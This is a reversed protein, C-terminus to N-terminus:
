PAAGVVVTHNAPGHRTWENVLSKIDEQGFVPNVSPIVDTMSMADRIRKSKMLLGTSLRKRVSPFPLAPQMSTMSLRSPPSLFTTSRSRLHHKSHPLKQTFAFINHKLSGPEIDQLHVDPLSCPFPFGALSSTSQIRRPSGASSPSMADPSMSLKISSISRISSNSSFSSMPPRSDPPPASSAHHPIPSHLPPSLHLHPIDELDADEIHEFEGKDSNKDTAKKEPVMPPWVPSRVWSPTIDAGADLTKHGSAKRAMGEANIKEIGFEQVKAEVGDGSVFVSRENEIEQEMGREAIAALLKPSRSQYKPLVDRVFNRMSEFSLRSAELFPYAQFVHIADEYLEHMVQVGALTAKHALLTIEDRLVEADGAQVLLPPLGEFDGFLPSAYPHTLYEETHEGLYLAIPNMHNDATPFPVVDYPANSDWSECSMTLDVWPSMLIAGSPLAYGNDRLYMLLALSLGGGASDGCIILNEPPIHLDEVLRFYASVVDHLPGPFCTEPALRYDLAFVRSDTYKALPISIIRQAAASSLYYAGHIYLIVREKRKLSQQSPGFTAEETRSTNRNLAPDSKNAAKWETQMRQWTKRGVVWEGSLERNGKEQADFEALIGRLNRKKVRFTVPSVLADSPLPVLGGIGMLMRITGIDVLSSHREAGRILSTVITMEIGWSKRRPGWIHHSLVDSTVETAKAAVIVGFKWYDWLRLPRRPQLKLKPDVRASPPPSGTAYHLLSQAPSRQTPQERPSQIRKPSFFWPAM